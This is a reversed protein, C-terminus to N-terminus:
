YYAVNDVSLACTLMSQFTSSNCEKLAFCKSTPKLSYMYVGRQPIYM